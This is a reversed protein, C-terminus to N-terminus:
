RYYYRRRGFSAGPEEPESMHDKILKEIMTTLPEGDNNQNINGPMANYQEPTMVDKAYTLATSLTRLACNLNRELYQIRETDQPVGPQANLANKLDSFCQKLQNQCDEVNKDFNSFDRSFAKDMELLEAKLSEITEGM